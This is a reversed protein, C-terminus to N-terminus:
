GNCEEPHQRTPSLMVTQRWCNPLGNLSLSNHLVTYLAAGCAAM